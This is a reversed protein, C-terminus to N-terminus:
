GYSNGDGIDDTGLLSLTPLAHPGEHGMTLACRVSHKDTLAKPNTSIKHKCRKPPLAPVVVHEPTPEAAEPVPEFGFIAALSTPPEYCSAPDQTLKPEGQRKLWQRCVEDLNLPDFQNDCVMFRLTSEKLGLLKALDTYGFAWLRDKPQCHASCIVQRNKTQSPNKKRGGFSPM